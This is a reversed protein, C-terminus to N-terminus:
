ELENLERLTSKFAQPTNSYYYMVDEVFVVHNDGTIAVQGYQLLESILVRLCSPPDGRMKMDTEISIFEPHKVSYNVQWTWPKFGFSEILSLNANLSYEGDGEDKPSGQGFHNRVEQNAGLTGNNLKVCLVYEVGM